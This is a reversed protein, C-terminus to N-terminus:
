FIVMQVFKSIVIKLLKTGKKVAKTNASFTFELGHHANKPDKRLYDLSKEGTGRILMCATSLAVAGYYLHNPQTFLSSSRSAEFYEKAQLLSARAQQAQKKYNAKMKSTSKGHISEIAEVALEINAYELLIRWSEDYISECTIWEM